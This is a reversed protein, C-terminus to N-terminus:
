CGMARCVGGMPHWGAAGISVQAGRAYAGPTLANGAQMVDSSSNFQTISGPASTLGGVTNPHVGAANFTTARGGTMIASAAALGGGLSHGVFHVNGGTSAHVSQAMIIAQDYQAGGLGLGQPINSAWDNSGNTGAFALVHHADGNVYLAAQLGTEPDIHLDGVQNYGDIEVGQPDYVDKALRAYTVEQATPKRGAQIGTTVAYSFAGTVAGNKFKGGGLVSAVGGSIAGSIAGAIDSSGLNLRLRPAVGAALFGSVFKGGQLQSSIGGVAGQAFAKTVAHAGEWGNIGQFASATAYAIAGSKLIDGISGGNIATNFGSALAAGLPGGYYTAVITGISQVIRNHLIKKVLKAAKKFLKKIAKFPNFSFFGSPDTFSLPNNMVYSYRNLSQANLPSQIHPDASIFRGLNADYVRGNM